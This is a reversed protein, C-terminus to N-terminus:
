SADLFDMPRAAAGATTTRRPSFSIAVKSPARKVFSATAMLM